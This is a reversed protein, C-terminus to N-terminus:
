HSVNKRKMLPFCDGWQTNLLEVGVSIQGVPAQIEIPTVEDEKYTRKLPLCFSQSM